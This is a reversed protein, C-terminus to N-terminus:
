SGSSLLNFIESLSETSNPLRSINLGCARFEVLSPINLLGVPLAELSNCDLIDLFKLAGLSCISDPLTKLSPCNQLILTELCPLLDFDPTAILRSSHSVDLIKLTKLVTNLKWSSINSHPLELFVLEPPCFDSPLSKLPCFSWRLWRLNEFIQVFSGTLNLYKLYLFRLKCMRKFTETTLTLEDFEGAYTEDNPIICEIVETGKNEKLVDHIDKWVWLRSKEGPEDPSKNHVIRQGMKCLLDHMLLESENGIRLLCSKKLIDINLDGFNYCTELIRVVDDKKNNNVFFCAIDLFIDQLIPDILKLADFSIMLKDQIDDNPFRQLRDIFWRWRVEPKNLLNSGFIELALPLGKAHQIIEESLQLLTESEISDGFAHKNFLQLSEADGLDNVQYRYSPEVQITDLLDENRTTIMIVSGSAFPGVLFEFPKINDLDDLVILVKTSCIRAQILKIGNDVNLVSINKGKLIDHFLQQQLSVLGLPTQMVKRIDALFCSAEFHRLNENYVAKALTTKGIGGTGYIGIKTVSEFSSSLLLTIDKVGSYLGVPYKAVQLTMPNIELLVRNVAENITLAESQYKDVHFGSFNAVKTLSVRWRDIKRRDRFINGSRDRKSSSAEHKKLAEEFSKKQHRVVWPDINFFVPIILRGMTDYCEHIEVLEDLCWHSEAYNESFVVIYTKSEKIAKLLAESIEDGVRLEPDDMFPRTGTRHLANYLHDTFINRTDIGRFSLFVDYSTKTASSSSAM